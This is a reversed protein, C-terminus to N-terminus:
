TYGPSGPVGPLWGRERARAVADRRSRVGLKALVHGVHGNVTRRSVFLTEAIERDTRGEALLRLVERERATLAEAGPALRHRTTAEEAAGPVAVAEAVAVAAALTLARGVARLAAFREVGLADRAGDAEDRATGVYAFIAAASSLGVEEIRADFAGALMAAREPQGHGAAIAALGAIAWVFEYRNGVGVWHRLADRYAAVAARDDGRTHALQALRCLADAAGAADGLRRCIALSEKAHRAALAADGLGAAVGSLLMLATAMVSEVGLERWLALARELLPGAEDWRREAHAILGLLHVAHATLEADDLQEAIALSTRVLPTAREHHGLYYLVLGLGHLARARAASAAADAHALAWELWRQGEGFYGRLYWFIALTGALRLVATADGTDALHALAARINPLDAETRRLCEAHRAGMGVRYPYYREAFAVFYAAHAARIGTAEDAAEMRELAYARITELMRFRAEGGVGVEQHLLSHDLLASIGAFVSPVPSPPCPASLVRVGSGQGGDGTGQPGCVAEAAELTFDGAFVALRRFLAQEDPSLLDHSWAIADRMTQLRAPADQPGGTLLALRPELRTLLAQPPLMPTRAAALEIALPLGDLRRCIAAVDGANDDTLAFDPRAAQARHVFLRVADADGVGAATAATAPDPLPLPPVPFRQEGSVRLPTRSTALVTLDPCAALLGAVFTGAALVHEMNDLVLLLRRDRVAAAVRDGLLREGHERVGLARAVASPVLDAAAVAALPVFVVGGAFRPALDAAARVALRTKGAGGPGTLTLLRTGPAGQAHRDDRRLLSHIAALERERGILATLPRPLGSATTDERAPFPLLRPPDPRPRARPLGASRRRAAYDALDAPAIRYVGADKTAALDGRVIARRITRQSVGLVAAAATASLSDSEGAAAGTDPTWPGARNDM